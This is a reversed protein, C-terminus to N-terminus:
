KVLEDGVKYIDGAGITLIIDGPRAMQRLQSVIQDFDEYYEANEM